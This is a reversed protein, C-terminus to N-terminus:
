GVSALAADEVHFRRMGEHESEESAEQAAKYAAKALTQDTSLDAFRFGDHGSQHESAISGTGRIELDRRSIEFGDTTEVMANMRRVSNETPEEGQKTMLFCYSQKDSRGVRGRLQHLQSLGFQGADQIVIITADSIDIGVEIVTTAVLCAGGESNAFADIAAQKEEPDMDGHATFVDIDDREAFEREVGAKMQHVSILDNEENSEILSCVIFAKAGDKVAEFVTEYAKKVNNPWYTEVPKRGYPMEDITSVDLDGYFTQAFSRPIPTATTLLMHVNPRSQFLEQRQRVGFRHQEDIVALGLDDFETDETILAHTGVVVKREGRAVQARVKDKDEKSSTLLACQIGLPALYDRVSEYHQEALIETPAMLACQYGAKAAAIIAAVSVVTKGSGVDGQLLRNMQQGSALDEEIEHVCRVQAVTLEFPLMDWFAKPVSFFPAEAPETKQSKLYSQFLYLEEFKLYEKAAELEGFSEPLHVARLAKQRTMVESSSLAEKAISEDVHSSISVADLARDVAKVLFLQGIGSSRLSETLPYVPVIRGVQFNSTGQDYFDPHIISFYKWKSVEGVLTMKGKKQLPYKVGFGRFWVGTFTDGNEDEFYAVLRKKGKKSVKEETSLLEADVVVTDGDEMEAVTTYNRRDIYKRPAYQLLDEITHIGVKQLAKARKPGIQSLDSVPNQITM